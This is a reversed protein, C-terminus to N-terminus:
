AIETVEYGANEVTQKLTENSVEKSLSVKAEQAELFVKAEVGELSNLAKEVRASCHGYTMGSIKLTKNSMIFKNSSNSNNTIQYTFLRAKSATPIRKQPVDITTINISETREGPHNVSELQKIKPKFRLLRLSNLVVSVSSFSMAAAAFMPNLKWGLAFYFVGAALPIGIINYFFAWFLNQKINRIVAKSLQIISVVDMLDSRMLVVDASEIAIDTGAGIAVGLDARTLAPADNIGDGVMAVKRGENQLRSIEKEKDQPLVESIVTPINLQHQIYAATKAHDGTLMIVDLGLNKFHEIANRSNIKLTDAVAILAIVSKEKAIFLPTKGQDALENATKVFNKIEINHNKMLLLNGAFYQSQYIKAKVGQGAITEFSDFPM